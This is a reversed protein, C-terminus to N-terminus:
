LKIAGPHLRDYWRGLVRLVPIALVADFLVSPLTVYRLNEVWAVPYGAFIRLAGVYLLHYLLAGGAIFVLPLLTASRYGRAESLAIVYTVPLLALSSIGLPAGSLLDLFLGGVFAWALGEGKRDLTAWVLALLVILDPQGGFVRLRALVTSQLLGAAIFLPVGLQLSM